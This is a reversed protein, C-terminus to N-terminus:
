HWTVRSPVEYDTHLTKSGRGTRECYLECSTSQCYDIKVPMAKHFSRHLIRHEHVVQPESSADRGDQTKSRYQESCKADANPAGATQFAGRHHDGEPPCM